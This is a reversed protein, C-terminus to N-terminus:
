FFIEESFTMEVRVSGNSQPKIKTEELPPLGLEEALVKKTEFINKNEIKEILEATQELTIVGGSQEKQRVVRQVQNLQTLNVKGERLKETVEPLKGLLEASRLREYAASESYGLYKLYEYTSAFGREFYLRRSHVEYIHVLIVHMLKRESKVHKELNSLVLEGPLHNLNLTAAKNYEHTFNM